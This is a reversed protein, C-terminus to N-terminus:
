SAAFSDSGHDKIRVYQNPEKSTVYCRRFEQSILGISLNGYDGDHFEILARAIPIFRSDDAPKELFVGKSYDRDVFRDTVQGHGQDFIVGAIIPQLNRVGEDCGRGAFSGRSESGAVHLM